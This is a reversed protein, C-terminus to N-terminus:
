HKKIEAARMQNLRLVKTQRAREAAQQTVAITQNMEQEKQHVGQELNRRTRLAKENGQHQKQWAEDNADKIKNAIMNTLRESEKVVEDWRM